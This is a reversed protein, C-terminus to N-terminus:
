SRENCGRSYANKQYAYDINGSKFYASLKCVKHIGTGDNQKDKNPYHRIEYLLSFFEMRQKEDRKRSHDAYNELKSCLFWFM